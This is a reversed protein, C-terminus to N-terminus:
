APGLLTCWMGGLTMTMTEGNVGGAAEFCLFTTVEVIERRDETQGAEEDASRGRTGVVPLLVLKM